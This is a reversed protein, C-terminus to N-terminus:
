IDLSVTNKDSKQKRPTKPITPKNSASSKQSADASKKVSITAPLPTQNQSQSQSQNPMSVSMTKLGSLLDSIDSPGKMEPRM